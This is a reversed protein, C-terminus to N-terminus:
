GRLIDFLSKTCILLNWICNTISERVDKFVLKTAKWKEQSLETKFPGESLISATRIKTWIRTKQVNSQITIRKCGIQFKTKPKAM